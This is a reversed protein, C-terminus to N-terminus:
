ISGGSQHQGVLGAMELLARDEGMSQLNIRQRRKAEAEEWEWQKVQEELEAEGGCGWVEVDQIVFRYEFSQNEQGRNSLLSGPLFSGGSGLHRFAAFELSSDITLSVNGPLYKKGSPKVIPQQNGIGIGGGITNFYINQSKAPNAHFLEQKPELQLIKTSSDGFLEKNTVKWPENVYVAFLVKRKKLSISDLHQDEDKLKGYESLFQKYRPNSSGSSIEEDEEQIRMGGVFLISPAMWKFVKSQFSRMSFGSDRGVYLKQFRSFVIERPLVTALQALQPETVIKTPSSIEKLIDNEVLDKEMFLVHELVCELPKLLYPAVVHITASFSDFNISYKSCDSINVIEPDMTRIFILAHHKFTDLEKCILDYDIKCNNMICRRSLALMFTFFHLLREAPISMDEINVNNYSHIALKWDKSDSLISSSSSPVMKVNKELALCIFIMKLEDYDAWGTYKVAREKKILLMAKLLTGFTTRENSDQILPFNALTQFMNSFASVLILDDAPIHYLECMESATVADNIDKGDPINGKFSVLEPTTFQKLSRANFYDVLSQDVTVEDQVEAADQGKSTAQGM